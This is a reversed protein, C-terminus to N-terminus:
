VKNNDPTCVNLYWRGIRFLTWADWVPPKGSGQESEAEDGVKEVPAGVKEVPAAEKEQDRSGENAIKNCPLDKIATTVGHNLIEGSRFLEGIQKTVVGFKDVMTQEKVLHTKMFDGIEVIESGISNCSQSISVLKNEVVNLALKVKEVADCLDEYEQENEEESDRVEGDVPPGDLVDNDDDGDVPPGDLVDNDDYGDVPPGDLVDNDDYGDVPPGDLVDNDDYGDVPPGDLVDNDDYGDVPPGDLVDNDDYGDVPPGDLVDNNNDSGSALRAGAGVGGERVKPSTRPTALDGFTLNTLPNERAAQYALRSRTNESLVRRLSKRSSEILSANVSSM